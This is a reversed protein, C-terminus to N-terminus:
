NIEFQTLVQGSSIRPGFAPCLDIDDHGAEAVVPGRFVDVKSRCAATAVSAHCFELPVEVPAAFVFACLFILILILPCTAIFIILKNSAMM